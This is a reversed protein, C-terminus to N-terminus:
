KNLDINGDGAICLTYILNVAIFTECFYHLLLHKSELLLHLWDHCLNHRACLHPRCSDCTTLSLCSHDLVM